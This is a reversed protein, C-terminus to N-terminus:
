QLSKESHGFLRTNLCKSRKISNGKIYVSLISIESILESISYNFTFYGAFDHGFRCSKASRDAPQAVFLPTM